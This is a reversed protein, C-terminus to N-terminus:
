RPSAFDATVVANQAAGLMGWRRAVGIRRFAPALVIHRHAASTLWQHVVTAAGGTRQPLAALTEGVLDVRPAYRRVRRDFPTGDSSPHAFFDSRLMDRSHRDAARNLARLPRLPALGHQARAGNLHAIVEREFGNLRHGASAAPATVLVAVVAAAFILTSGRM